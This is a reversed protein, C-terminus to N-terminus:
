IKSKDNEEEKNLHSYIPIYKLFVEEAPLPCDKIWIINNKVKWEKPIEGINIDKFINVRLSKDINGIQQVFYLFPEVDKQNHLTITIGNIINLIKILEVQNNTKTTYLYIPATTQNRIDRIAQRVVNPYLMPEGGTLMIESFGKYSFCGRLNDLDWDKNCCGQCNRNCESFLFLRLKM